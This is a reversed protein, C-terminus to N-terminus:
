ATEEARDTTIEYPALRRLASTLESPRLRLLLAAALARGDVGYALAAMQGYALGPRHGAVLDVGALRLRTAAAHLVPGVQGARLRPLWDPQARLRLPKDPLDRDSRWVAIRGRSLHCPALMVLAAPM